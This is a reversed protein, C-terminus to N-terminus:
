PFHSRIAAKNETGQRMIQGWQFLKRGFFIRKEWYSILPPSCLIHKYDWNFSFLSAMSFIGYIVWMSCFNITIVIYGYEGWNPRGKQQVSRTISKKQFTKAFIKKKKKGCRQPFIAKWSPLDDELMRGWKVDSFFIARKRGVYVQVIGWSFLLHPQNIFESLPRWRLLIVPRSFLKFERTAILFLLYPCMMQFGTPLVM